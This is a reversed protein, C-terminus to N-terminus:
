LAVTYLKIEAGDKIAKDIRGRMDKTGKGGPMQIAHTPKGESLMRQNRIGGAAADYPDQFGRKVVVAGPRTIDNWRAQFTWVKIGVSEAWLRAGRDAGRAGGEIVLKIDSTYNVGLLKYVHRELWAAVKNEDLGRGGFILVRM